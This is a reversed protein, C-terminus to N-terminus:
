EESEVPHFGKQALDDMLYPRCVAFRRTRVNQLLVLNRNPHDEIFQEAKKQSKPGFMQVKKRM